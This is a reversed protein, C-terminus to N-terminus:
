LKKRHSTKKAARSPRRYLAREKGLYRALHEPFKLYNKQFLSNYFDHFILKGGSATQKLKYNDPDGDDLPRPCRGKVATVPTRIGTPVGYYLSMDRRLAM